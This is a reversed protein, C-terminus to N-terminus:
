REISFLFFLLFSIRVLWSYLYTHLNNGPWWRLKYFGPPTIVSFKAKTKFPITALVTDTKTRKSAVTRMGTICHRFTRSILEYYCVRRITRHTAFLISKIENVFLRRSLWRATFPFWTLLISSFYSTYPTTIIWNLDTHWDAYSYIVNEKGVQLNKQLSLLYHNRFFAPLIQILFYM